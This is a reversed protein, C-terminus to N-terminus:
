VVNLMDRLSRDATSSLRWYDAKCGIGCRAIALGIGAM